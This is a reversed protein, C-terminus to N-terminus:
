SQRGFVATVLVNGSEDLKEIHASELKIRKEAGLKEMWSIWTQFQVPAFEATVHDQGEISKLQIHIAKASIMIEDRIGGQAGSLHKRLKGIELTEGRMLALKSQLTPLEANLRKVAKEGPLWVFAFLLSASLFLAAYILVNKERASRMSWFKKLSDKM